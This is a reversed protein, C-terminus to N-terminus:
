RKTLPVPQVIRTPWAVPIGMPQPPPPHPVPVPVPVLEPEDIWEDLDDDDVYRAPNPPAADFCMVDHWGAPPELEAVIRRPRHQVSATISAMRGPACTTDNYGYAHAYAAGVAVLSVVVGSLTTAIFTLDWASM